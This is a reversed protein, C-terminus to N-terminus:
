SYPSPALLYTVGPGKTHAPAEKRIDWRRPGPCTAAGEPPSQPTPLGGLAWPEWDQLQWQTDALGSGGEAM